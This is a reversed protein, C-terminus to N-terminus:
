FFWALWYPSLIGLVALILGIWYAAVMKKYKKPDACISGPECVEKKRFLYFGAAGFLVVVVIIMPTRLFEFKALFAAGSVGLLTLILPGVCCLSATLAAILGGGILWSSKNEPNKFKSM